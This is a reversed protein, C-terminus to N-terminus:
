TKKLVVGVGHITSIVNAEPDLKKRLRKLTTRMAEVTSESSSPWVRNLLAEQSFVQDPHRMLFELLQYERPMLQVPEGDKFVLHQVPDISINKCQLSGAGLLPPRRLLARIRAKLKILDCPKTLYDDAGSDLGCEKDSATSKGTLLLIPLRGGRARYDKIIDVGMKDPLNWDLLLLDYDFSKLKFEAEAGDVATDVIHKDMSLTLQLADRLSDDDEVILIKAM